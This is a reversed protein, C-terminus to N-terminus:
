GEVRLGHVMSDILAVLRDVGKDDVRARATMGCAERMGQDEMIRLMPSLGSDLRRRDVAWAGGVVCHAEERENAAVVIMPASARAAEYQTRGRSCIVLDANFLEAAMDAGVVEVVNDALPLLTAKAQPGLILRVSKDALAPHTAIERGLGTPDSGGCTVVVTELRESYDSRTAPLAAFEERLVAWAPGSMVSGDGSLEDVVAVGPTSLITTSPELILLPWDGSMGAFMGPTDLCDSVVLDYAAGNPLPLLGRSEFLEEAWQAGDIVDVSVDHARRLADALRLCRQVHGTGTAPDGICRIWIRRRRARMDALALDEYSDIDIIESDTAVMWEEGWGTGLAWGRRMAVVGADTFTMGERAEQRNVYPTLREGRQWTQRHSEQVLVASGPLETEGLKAVLAHVDDPTVGISTPPLIVLVDWSIDTEAVYAAVERLTTEPTALAAPRQVVDVGHRLALGAVQPCDTSVLVRANSMEKAAAQATRIAHLALPTGDVLQMSKHSVSASGARAPILILVSPETSM